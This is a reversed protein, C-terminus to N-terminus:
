FTLFRAADDFSDEVVKFSVARGQRTGYGRRRRGRSAV